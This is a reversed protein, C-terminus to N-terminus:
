SLDGFTPVFPKYRLKMGAEEPTRNRKKANCGKSGGCAVVCNMWSTEGGRSQPVIHDVTSGPGGCYACVGKDRKLLGVRSYRPKGHGNRWKVYIYKILRVVKPLPFPGIMRDGDQEEVIAVERALMRVAHRLDVTQLPLYDANLIVVTSM